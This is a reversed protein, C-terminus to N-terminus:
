KQLPVAAAQCEAHLLAAPLESDQEARHQLLMASCLHLVFHAQRRVQVAAAMLLHARNTDLIATM